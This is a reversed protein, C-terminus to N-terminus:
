VNVIVQSKVIWINGVILKWLRVFMTAFIRTFNGPNLSEKDSMNRKKDPVEFGVFKDILFITAFGRWGGGWWWGGRRGREGRIVGHGGRSRRRWRRIVLIRSWSWSRRGLRWGWRWSARVMLELVHVNVVVVQARTAAARLVDRVLEGHEVGLDLARRLRVGQLGLLLLLSPLLVAKRVVRGGGALAGGGVTGRGGGRWDALRLFSLLHHYFCKLYEVSVQQIRAFFNTTTFFLISNFHELDLYGVIQSQLLFTHSVHQGFPLLYIISNGVISHSKARIKSHQFPKWLLIYHLLVDEVSDTSTTCLKFKLPNINKSPFINLGKWSCSLLYLHLM